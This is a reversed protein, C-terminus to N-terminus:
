LMAVIASLAASGILLARSSAEVNPVELPSHTNAQNGFKYHDWYFHRLGALYHYVLPFTIAAKTPFVLLPYAAKFATITSSLDGTLALWGVAASGLSLAVGTGRNAISSIAGVPMKYHFQKGDIEFVHPSLPRKSAL